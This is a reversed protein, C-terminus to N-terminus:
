RIFATCGYVCAYTHMHKHASSIIFYFLYLLWVLFINLIQMCYKNIIVYKIYLIIIYEDNSYNSLM